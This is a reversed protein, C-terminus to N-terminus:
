ARAWSANMTPAAAIPTSANASAVPITNATRLYAARSGAITCGLCDEVGRSVSHAPGRWFTCNAAVAFAPVTTLCARFVGSQCVLSLASNM